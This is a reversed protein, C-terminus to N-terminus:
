VAGPLDVEQAADIKRQLTLRDGSGEPKPRPAADILDFTDSLVLDISRVPVDM